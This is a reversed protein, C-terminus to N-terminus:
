ILPKFYETFVYVPTKYRNNRLEKVDCTYRLHHKRTNIFNEYSLLGMKILALEVFQGCNTLKSFSTNFIIKAIETEVVNEDYEMNDKAYEIFDWFDLNAKESIHEELEKYFIYGRYTNLRHELDCIAIGSKFEKPYFEMRYPNFAEVFMPKSEKDKKYIIGIHSYYSCMYIQNLSDLASFMLIDGSKVKDKIDDWVVKKFDPHALKIYYVYSIVIILLIIISFPVKIYM